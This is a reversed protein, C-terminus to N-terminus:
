ATGRGTASMKRYKFLAKRNTPFTNKRGVRTVKQKRLHPPTQFKHHGRCVKPNELITKEHTLNCIGM